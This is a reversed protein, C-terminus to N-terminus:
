CWEGNQSRGSHAGVRGGGKLDRMVYCLNSPDKNREILEGVAARVLLPDAGAKFQKGVEKALQGKVRDTLAVGSERAHDVAFAVVTQATLSSEEEDPPPEGGSPISEPTLLGSEPTLLGSEPTLPHKDQAPGTNTDSLDPAPITSEREKVHPTQHKPFTPIAIYCGGNVSYRVILETKALQELLADVDVADYPFVEARIRKPRDELRGARDALCWLGQFLLRTEFPLDALEENKFFGPKLNRARV